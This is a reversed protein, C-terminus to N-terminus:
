RSDYQRGITDCGNSTCSATAALRTRSSYGNRFCFPNNSLGTTGLDGLLLRHGKSVLIEGSLPVSKQKVVKYAFCASQVM